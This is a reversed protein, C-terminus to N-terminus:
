PSGGDRLTDRAKEKEGNNKAHGGNVPPPESFGALSLQADKTSAELRAVGGRALDLRACKHAELEVHVGCYALNCGSCIKVWASGCSAACGSFQGSFTEPPDYRRM